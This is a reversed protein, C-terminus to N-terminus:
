SVQPVGDIRCICLPLGLPLLCPFLSLFFIQLYLLSFRGLGSSIRLDVCGLLHFLDLYFLNWFIRVLFYFLIFDVSLFMIILNGFALFLSDKKKKKMTPRGSAYPAGPDPILNLSCNWDLGCTRYGWVRLWQALSPPNFGCGLAEFISGTGTHRLLLEWLIKFDPLCFHSKM